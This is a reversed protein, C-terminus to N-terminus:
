QEDDEDEDEGGISPSNFPELSDGLVLGIRDLILHARQELFGQIKTPDLQDLFKDTVGDVPICASRLQDIKAQLTGTREAERLLKDM